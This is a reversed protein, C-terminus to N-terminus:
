GRGSSRTAAHAPAINPYLARILIVALFGGILQAAIFEPASSPDIGAFTDSFMRGITIAPNAFSTSSTFFYAAGIYAAVAAPVREARGTRSLSFIVLLLGITAVVESVGHAITARHTTSISVVDTTFMINAVAAGSACGALQAVVYAPLDRWALGGFLADVLSM